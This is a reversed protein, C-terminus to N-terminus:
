GFPVQKRIMPGFIETMPMPMIKWGSTFLRFLPSENRSNGTPAAKHANNLYYQQYLQVPDAGWSMKHQYTGSGIQSRGLDVWQYGQDLALEITDWIMVYFTNLDLYERLAGAWTCVLIDKFYFIFGGGLIQDDKNIVMTQFQESFQSAASKFFKIGQTPTGRERMARSFVPYYDDLLKPSTETTVSKRKGKNARQRTKRNVKKKVADMGGDLNMMMVVHKEDTLLDPNEVKELSDRLVLYQMEEEQVIGKAYALLAEQVEASDASIGGPLSTLYKGFIPSKVKLMPLVGVIKEQDYAALFVSNLGYAEEFVHKWGWLQFPNSLRASQVYDNWEVQRSSDVVKAEIM